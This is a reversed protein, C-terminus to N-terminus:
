MRNMESASKVKVFKMKNVKSERKSASSSVVSTSLGFIFHSVILAIDTVM